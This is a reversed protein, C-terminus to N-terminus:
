TKKNIQFSKTLGFISALIAAYFLTSNQHDFVGNTFSYFIYFSSISFGFIQISKLHVNNKEKLLKISYFFTSSFVLILSIFGLIGQEVTSSLYEGHSHRYREIDRSISGENILRLKESKFNDEGIGLLPKEKIILYAAKWMELRAGLSTKANGSDVYNVIDSSARQVREIAPSNPLYFSLTVSVIIFSTLLSKELKNLFMPNFYLLAFFTPITALWVGRGGNLIAVVIGIFGFFILFLNLLVPHERSIFFFISIGVIASYLTFLGAQNYFELYPIKVSLFTPLIKILGFLMSTIIVGSFLLIPSIKSQRFFFFIPLVLLFRSAVDLDRIEGDFLLISILTSIFYFGFSFVIFKEWKDMHPYKYTSNKLAVLSLLIILGFIMGGKPAITLLPVSLLLLISIIKNLTIGM